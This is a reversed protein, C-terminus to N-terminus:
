PGINALTPSLTTVGTAGARALSEDLSMPVYEGRRWLEALNDYHRSLPHGSQGTSIIFVSSDPDAFDYVGRYAGAHVNLYPNPGTGITKGRQLTNDGGSTSHRINVFWKLVPIKGLVPHDHTAQHAEGWRLGDIDNSYTNLLETLADDLALQAMAACTEIPESQVVDCWQGAGDINRYVREIFLPKVQSFEKSLPGLEDQVLRVQLARIWASYILPEPLHENMEGNWNALLNLAVKRQELLKNFPTGKSQFWLEAGILPLITRATSSISDLQAEIFSDRTHAERNQMLRVWRQVRQTDSWDYSIHEPFPRDIYKNNTNGLVGGIPNLFVPNVSQDFMGQWRNVSLWGATPMRGRSQNRPDRKPLAGITRMAIQNRDALTLNQGPAIYTRSAKMASQVSHSAMIDFAAEISTDNASLLTWAVSTVYGEPTIAGLNYHSSPLVPGNETWLLDITISISDKIKIISQKKIFPVFENLSLYENPNNPNVKEIYVDTDDINATTLGWGLHASRGVLVIPVGPITGGIVGGTELELRALYWISPATLSLHPDNALLTGRSASRGPLAAWANSAGSLAIPKFPSFAQQPMNENAQLRPLTPFLSAFDNLIAQGPGPVDPLIDKLRDNDLILSLRARLVESELHSSMQLGMLKIIALSDAPSWRAIANSFIFFEPAGRGLAGSNIEKLRANVGQAYANLKLQTSPRLASISNHAASYIGLRRVVKDISLTKEGFLESLRGQATRRLMTMQWLRDQAHVYGLAFLTDHDNTGFIHPINATDRVVETKAILDSFQVTKNYNPLSQSLFFYIFFLILVSFAAVSLTIRVLWVFIREM